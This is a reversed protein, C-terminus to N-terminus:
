QSEPDARPGWRAREISFCRDMVVTLGAAKAAEAAEESVIGLQLWFVRAGIAIAQAALAPAEEAPRFVSVMDVTGPIDALRAYVTKGLLRDASPHVPVVDYGGLQMDRAVRASAKDPDRSLGVVAIRRVTSLVEQIRLDSETM